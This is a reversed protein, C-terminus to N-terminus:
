KFYKKQGDRLLLVVPLAAFFSYYRYRESRSYRKFLIRTPTKEITKECNSADLRQLMITICYDTTFIIVTCM